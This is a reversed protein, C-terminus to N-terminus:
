NLDIDVLHGEMWAQGEITPLTTCWLRKSLFSKPRKYQYGREFYAKSLRTFSDEWFAVVADTVNKSTLDANFKNNMFTIWRDVLTTKQQQIGEVLPGDVYSILWTTPTIRITWKFPWEQPDGIISGIDGTDIPKDLCVYFRCSPVPEGCSAFLFFSHPIGRFAIKTLSVIDVTVYLYNCMISGNVIFKDGTWEVSTAATNFRIPLSDDSRLLISELGQDCTMYDGENAMSAFLGFANMGANEFWCDWGWKLVDYEPKTLVSVAVEDLTMLKRTISAKKVKSKANKFEAKAQDATLGSLFRISKEKKDLATFTCGVRKALSQIKIQHSHIVSSGLEAIGGCFPISKQKGRRTSGKELIVFDKDADLLQWGIYVGAIGAGLVVHDVQQM